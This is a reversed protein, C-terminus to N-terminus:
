EHHLDAPVFRVYEPQFNLLVEGTPGNRNKAVILTSNARLGQDQMEKEDFRHLLM